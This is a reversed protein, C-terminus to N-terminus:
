KKNKESWEAYLDFLIRPNDSYWGYGARREREIEAMTEKKVGDRGCFFPKGTELDYYRAWLPLANEDYVIHRDFEEYEDRFGEVKIGTIKNEELWDMASIVADRVEPSPNEINMLHRIVAVSEQPTLSPLEYSRAKRPEYNERDSQQPWITKKGDKVYQCKLIAEIGKKHATECRKILKNDRVSAYKGDKNVYEKILDMINMMSDDNFTIHIQYGKPDPWFQPWGGNEYQGSLIFALGKNFAEKYRIDSTAKYM